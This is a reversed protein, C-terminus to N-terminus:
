IYEMFRQRVCMISECMKVDRSEGERDTSENTMFEMEIGFPVSLIESICLTQINFHNKKQCLRFASVLPFRANPHNAQLVDNM